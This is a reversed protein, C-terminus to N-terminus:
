GEGGKAMRSLLEAEFRLLAAQTRLFAGYLEHDAAQSELAYPVADYPLTRLDGAPAVPTFDHMAAWREEIMALVQSHGDALAGVDTVDRIAERGEEVYALLEGEREATMATRDAANASKVILDRWDQSGHATM